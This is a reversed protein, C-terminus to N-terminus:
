STKTAGISEIIQELNRLAAVLGEADADARSIHLTKAIQECERALPVVASLGLLGAEGALTHLERVVTPTAAHDRGTTASIAVALRGRASKIFQPLFRAYLDDDM